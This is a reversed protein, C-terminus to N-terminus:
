EVLLKKTVANNDAKITIFYLGAALNTVDISVDNGNQTSSGEITQIRQGLSNVVM